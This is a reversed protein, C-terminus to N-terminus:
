CWKENNFPIHRQRPRHPIEPPLTRGKKDLLTTMKVRPAEGKVVKLRRKGIEKQVEKLIHVKSLAMKVAIWMEPANEQLYEIAAINEPTVAMGPNDKVQEIIEHGKATAKELNDPPPVLNAVEGPDYDPDTWTPNNKKHKKIASKIKALAEKHPFPPTCQDAAEIVITEIEKSSLGRALRSSATGSFRLMESATPHVMSYKPLTGANLREWLGPLPKATGSNKLKDLLAKPAEAITVEDPHGSLEWAYHRGSEHLSPEVTIYGGNAKIHIEPGLCRADTNITMGPHFQFLYHLGNGGTIQMVTDPLPGIEETLTDLSEKGIEDDVDLVWFGSVEGTPIGINADPWKSLLFLIETLDTTADLFGNQTRPHKGINTCRTTPDGKFQGNKIKKEECSCGGPIPTHLDFVPWGRAVYEAAATASEMQRAKKKPSKASGIVARLHEAALWRKANSPYEEGRKSALIDWPRKTKNEGECEGDCTLATVTRKGKEGTGFGTPRLLGNDCDVCKPKGESTYQDPFEQKHFELVDLIESLKNEAQKWTLIPIEPIPPLPQPPNTDVPKLHPTTNGRSRGKGKTGGTSSKTAKNGVEESSVIAPSPEDNNLSNTPSTDDIISQKTTADTVKTNVTESPNSLKPTLMAEERSTNKSLRECDPRSETKEDILPSQPTISTPPHNDPSSANSSTQPTLDPITLGLVEHNVQSTEDHM